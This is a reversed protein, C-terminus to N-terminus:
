GAWSITSALTWSWIMSYPPLSLSLQFLSFQVKELYAFLDDTGCVRAIKVLQM